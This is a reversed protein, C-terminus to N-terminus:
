RRRRLRVVIDDVPASAVRAWVTEARYRRHAVSIKVQWDGPAVNKLIFKGPKRLVVFHPNPVVVITGEMNKHVSCFYKVIGPSDFRVRHSKGKPALGINFKNDRSLSYVNHDIEREEDNVFEIESGQVVVITSPSFMRGRQFVRVPESPEIRSPKSSRELYVVIDRLRKKGEVMVEGALEAALATGCWLGAIVISAGLRGVPTMGIMTRRHVLCQEWNDPDDPPVPKM